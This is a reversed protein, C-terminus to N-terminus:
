VGLLVHSAKIIASVKNGLQLDLARVSAKTISAVIPTGGALKIEVESNVAGPELRAVEGSLVNRASLKANEVNKGVMVESAKIIAHAASGEHLGLSDVSHNTIISVVTEGGQLALTVEANVAGKTVNKVTGGLVNRASIKM